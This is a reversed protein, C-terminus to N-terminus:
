PQLEALLDGLDLPYTVMSLEGDVFPWESQPRDVYLELGNHDPDHLYIAESVGHDSAGDLNIGAELVKALATALSKRNPYLIAVHFLGTANAAPRPGDLSQWVNLGIHHHYGGFSLFAASSGYMQTMDLGLVDRYFAISRDLNSVKVHVHGIVPHDSM